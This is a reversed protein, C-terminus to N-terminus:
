IKYFEIVQGYSVFNVNFSASIITKLNTFICQHTICYFNIIGEWKGLIGLTLDPLNACCLLNGNSPGADPLAM